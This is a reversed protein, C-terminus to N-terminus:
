QQRRQDSRRDPSQDVALAPATKQSSRVQNDGGAQHDQRRRVADRPKGKGLRHEADAEAHAKVIRGKRSQRPKVAALGAACDGPIVRIAPNALVIPQGNVAKNKCRHSQRTAQGIQRPQIDQEGGWQVPQRDRASHRGAWGRVSWM